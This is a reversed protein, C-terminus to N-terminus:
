YGGLGLETLKSGTSGGSVGQTVIDAVSKKGGGAGAAVAAGGGLLGAGALLLKLFKNLHIAM